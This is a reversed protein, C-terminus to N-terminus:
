RRGRAEFLEAYIGELGEIEDRFTRVPPATAALRTALEPEVALRRIAEALAAVNAHPVLLGGGTELAERMGGLDSAVVPIGNLFAERIVLPANEYWLSPVALADIDAYISAVDARGFPGRLSIREDRGILATLEAHYPPDTTAGGHIALRVPVEPPLSRVAAVLVHAGKRPALSGVFALRLPDGDRRERRQRARVEAVDIGHRFVRIRSRDLGNGVMIDRLFRSPALAVTALEFARRLHHPRREVAARAAGAHPWALHHLAMDASDTYPDIEGQSPEAEMTGFYSSYRDVAMCRQCAGPEPGRCLTGDHRVLQVVPCVFWFDTLSLVIPAGYGAAAWLAAASLYGVHTAHVVDPRWEHLAAAVYAGMSPNHFEWLFPNPALAPHHIVRRVPIGDRLEDTHGLYTAGWEHSAALVRVEHGRARMRTAVRETYLETGAAQEPPYQHVLYAIRM